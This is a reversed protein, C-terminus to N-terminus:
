GASVWPAIARECFAWLKARDSDSEQHRGLFHTPRPARDCWFGGTSPDLGDAALLWVVTDAGEAATRLVPRMLSRFRPLHTQVGPTDAWGPHMAQVAVDDEALETAWLESLVVQMRKTRAYATTADYRETAYELDGIPLPQAYMGGSSVWIVRSGAPLVPRLLSTLLHPGLAHVTLVLEHGSDSETRERTMTGANHVLGYLEPVRRAFDDTFEAVAELSGVDCVEVTFEGEHVRTQLGAVADTTRALDRGLVHVVAGLRAVDEAAALGLGSTGGTVLVHRGRLAGDPLTDWHLRRLHYGIRSYGPVITRDLARDLLGEHTM